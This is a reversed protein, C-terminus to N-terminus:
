APAECCEVAHTMLAARGRRAAEEAERITHFGGLSTAKGDVWIRARFRGNRAPFVGRVGTSSDARTGLNQRNEAATAFRLNKRRNDLRRRNIHDVEIADVARPGVGLVERHMWVTHRGQGRRGETRYAYGSRFWWRHQALREYDQEDVLAVRGAGHRGSLPIVKM